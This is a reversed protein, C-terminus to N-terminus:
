GIEENHASIYGGEGTRKEDQNLCIKVRCFNVEYCPVDTINEPKNFNIYCVLYERMFEQKKHM